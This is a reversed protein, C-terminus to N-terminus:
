FRLSGVMKGIVADTIIRYGLSNVHCCPEDYVTEKEERFIMTLDYINVGKQKMRVVASRLEAFERPDRQFEKRIVNKTEWDTFVKSDPVYQNPQLFFIAKKGLTSLLKQQMVTYREWVSVSGSVGDPLAQRYFDREPRRLEIEAAAKAEAAVSKARESLLGGFVRTVSFYLASRGIPSRAGMAALGRSLSGLFQLSANSAAAKSSNWFLLYPAIPYDLPFLPANAKASLENFGDLNIFLDVGDAFYSAVFFQQPQKFGGIAMNWLRIKKQALAPFKKKLKEFFYDRGETQLWHGWLFALSGGLVGVVYESGEHKPSFARPDEFGYNNITPDTPASVFGFYPHPTLDRLWNGAEWEAERLQREYYGKEGFGSGPRAAWFLRTAGESFFVTLISSFFALWFRSSM